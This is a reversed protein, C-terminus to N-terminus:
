WLMIWGMRRYQEVHKKVMSETVLRALSVRMVFVAALIMPRGMGLRVSSFLFDMLRRAFEITCSVVRGSCWYMVRNAEPCLYLVMLNLLARRPFLRIGAAM